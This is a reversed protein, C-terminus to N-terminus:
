SRSTSAGRYNACWFLDNSGGSWTASGLQVFQQISNDFNYSYATDFVVTQEKNIGTIERQYIGTVPRGPYYAFNATIAAAGGYPSVSLSIDGTAYNVWSNAVVGVGTVIFTGDGNDTFTSANPAAITVVLSGPQLEKNTDTIGLVTFINLTTTAGTTNGLAQATFARRLRGVINPGQRRKVQANEIYANNMVQFADDPIINSKLNTQLGTTFAKIPVPQM